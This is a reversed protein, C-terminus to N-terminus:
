PFRACRGGVDRRAYSGFALDDWPPGLITGPALYGGGKLVGYLLTNPLVVPDTAPGTPPLQTGVGDLVM